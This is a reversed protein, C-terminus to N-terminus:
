QSDKPRHALGGRSSGVERPSSTKSYAIRDNTRTSPSGPGPNPPNWGLDMAAPERGFDDMPGTPPIPSLGPANRETQRSSPTQAFTTRNNRPRPARTQGEPLNWNSERSSSSRGSNSANDLLNPSLQRGTPLPSFPNSVRPSRRDSERSSTSRGSVSVNDIELSIPGPINRNSTPRPSIIPVRPSPWDSERSSSSRGSLSANDNRNASTDRGPFDLNASTPPPYRDPIRRDSVHRPTSTRSSITMDDMLDSLPSRGSTNRIRDTQDSLLNRGRTPPNEPRRSSSGIDFGSDDSIQDFDPRRRPRDNDRNTFVNREPVEWDNGWTSSSDRNRLESDGTRQLDLDRDSPRENGTQRPQRERIRDLIQDTWRVENNSSPGEGPDDWDDQDPDWSREPNDRTVPEQSYSDEGSSSRYDDDIQKSKPKKPPGLSDIGYLIGQERLHGEPDGIHRPIEGSRPPRINESITFTDAIWKDAAAKDSLITTHIACSTGCGELCSFHAITGNSMRGPIEMMSETSCRPCHLAGEYVISDDPTNDTPRKKSKTRSRRKKLKTITELSKPRKKERKEPRDVAERIQFHKKSSTYSGAKRGKKGAREQEEWARIIAAQKTEEDVMASEPIEVRRWKGVPIELTFPM